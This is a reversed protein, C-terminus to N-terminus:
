KIPTIKWYQGTYNGTKSLIPTNNKGDNIIDLSKGEGQWKTTLRYYGNSLKEIRWYQGTYNGKKALQPQNDKDDNLVDLVKDQGQWHTSLRYYGNDLKQIKWYQGTYKGTKALTVKNKKGSNIIDLSKSEGQWKTTLRYYKNEDFEVLDPNYENNQWVKRLMAYGKADHFGNKGFYAETIEAFYEQVNNTAYAKQKSKSDTGNFYAVSEYRKNLMADDYAAQVDADGYGLVQDHFAHTLEHLVMYPQNQKTWNIFNKINTINVTKAKEAPYGNNILWQRSPHYEAAGNPRMSWDMFFPVTKLKSKARSSMNMKDIEKLKTQLLTIATQTQTPHDSLAADEIYVNRGEITQLTYGEVNGSPQAIVLLPLLMLLIFILKRMIM